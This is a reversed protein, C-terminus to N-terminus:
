DCEIFYCVAPRVARLGFINAFAYLQMQTFWVLLAVLM